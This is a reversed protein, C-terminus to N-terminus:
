ARVKGFMDIYENPDLGFRRCLHAALTSGCSFTDKVCAWRIQRGGNPRSARVAREVLAADTVEPVSRLETM